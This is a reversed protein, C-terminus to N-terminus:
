QMQRACRLSGDDRLEWRRCAREFSHGNAESPMDVWGPHGWEDGVFTLYADAALSYTLLRAMKHLDIARRVSDSPPNRACMRTRPTGPGLLRNFLPQDGVLSQDHCDVYAVVRDEARRRLMEAAVRAVDIAGDDAVHRPTCIDAWMPPLGMAQRYDYGIGGARVPACLGPYGSHDEAISILPPTFEAHALENALQLFALGDADVDAADGFYQAYGGGFHGPPGLSRHRYLATSVADHRFGDINYATAFWALSGLLLRVVEVKSYDFLRSGWAAHHGASGGLFYAAPAAPTDYQALGERANASAHSHVLELLVQHAFESDARSRARPM